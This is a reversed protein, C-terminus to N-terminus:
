HRHGRVWVRSRHGWRDHQWGWYGGRWMPPAVVPPVIVQYNGYIAPPAYSYPYPYAYPAAVYPYAPYAPLLPLGLGFFFRVDASAPASFLGILALVVTATALAHALGRCIRSPQRTAVQKRSDITM